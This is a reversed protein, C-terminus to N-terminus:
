QRKRCVGFCSAGLVRTCTDLCYFNASEDCSAPNVRQWAEMTNEISIILRDRREQDNTNGQKFKWVLDELTLKLYGVSNQCKVTQDRERLDCADWFDHSNKVRSSYKYNGNENGSARGYEHVALAAQDLCSKKTWERESMEIKAEEPIYRADLCTTKEGGSNLDIKTECLHPRASVETTELARSFAAADFGAFESKGATQSRAIAKLALQGVEVFELESQRGGGREQGQPSAFAVLSFLLFALNM